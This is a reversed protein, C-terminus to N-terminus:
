GDRGTRTITGNAGPPGVSTNARRIDGLLHGLLGAFLEIDLVDAAGAAIGAM